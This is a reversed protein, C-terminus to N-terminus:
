GCSWALKKQRIASAAVQFSIWIEPFVFLMVKGAFVNGTADVISHYMEAVSVPPIVVSVSWKLKEVAAPVVTAVQMEGVPVASSPDLGIVNRQITWFESPVAGVLVTSSQFVGMSLASSQCTMTFVVSSM